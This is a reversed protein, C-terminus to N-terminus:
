TIYIYIVNIQKNQNTKKKKKKKRRKFFFIRLPKSPNKCGLTKPTARKQIAREM